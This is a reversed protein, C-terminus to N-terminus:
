DKLFKRPNRFFQKLLVKEVGGGKECVLYEGEIYFSKEGVKARYYGCEVDRMAKYDEAGRKIALYVRFEESTQISLEPLTRAYDLLIKNTYIRNSIGYGDAVIPRPLIQLEELWYVVYEESQNDRHAKFYVNLDKRRKIEIRKVEGYMRVAGQGKAGKSEYIAVYKIQMFKHRISKLPIHYVKYAKIKEIQEENKTPGVLVNREEIQLEELYEVLGQQVPLTEYHSYGSEEILQELFESLLSYTSPLFPFGGIGVAEISKYFADQTYLKEKLGPFLVFAGFVTKEYQDKRANSYVIADRYRHMTNIDEEMPRTYLEEGYAKYNVKYKADFIYKYSVHAMEKKLELINDPKQNVTPLTIESANYRLKFVEKTIPHQFKLESDRGKRLVVFIGKHNIKILDQSIMKYKQRLLAGIKIFCWYEYLEAINKTAIVYQGQVLSIGRLLLMYLKYVERYGPAIQLVLSFMPRKQLESVNAFMPAQLINKLRAKYSDLERIVGEDTKRKLQIYQSKIRELKYILEKIWYKVFQNEATDYTVEKVVHLAKTPVFCEQQKHIYSSHKRLYNLSQSNNLYRGKPKGIYTRIGLEHHPRHIIIQCAKIFDDFKKKLISYFETLSPKDTTDAQGLTYTAKLFDYSLNYIEENVDELLAKYDAKYNMKSPFIELTLILYPKGDIHIRLDTYGVENRFNLLGSLLTRERDVYSVKDRIIIQDHEFTIDKGQKNKIIIQYNQQEYFLPRVYYTGNAEKGIPRQDIETTVAEKCWVQYLAQEGEPIIEIHLHKPLGKIYLGLVDNEIAILEM